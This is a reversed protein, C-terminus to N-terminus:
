SPDFLFAAYGLSAAVAAWEVCWLPWQPGRILEGDHWQRLFVVPKSATAHLLVLERLIDLHVSTTPLLQKPLRGQPRDAQYGRFRPRRYGKRHPKHSYPCVAMLTLIFIRASLRARFCFHVKLPTQPPGPEEGTPCAACPGPQLPPSLTRAPPRSVILSRTSCILKSVRNRSAM